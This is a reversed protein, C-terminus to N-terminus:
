CLWFFKPSKNLGTCRHWKIDQVSQAINNWLCVTKRAFAQYSSLFSCKVRGKSWISPYTMMEYGMKIRSQTRPEMQFQTYLEPQLSMKRRKSAQEPTVPAQICDKPLTGGVQEDAQSDPVPIMPEEIGWRALYSLDVSWGKYERDKALNMMSSRYSHTQSSSWSCM